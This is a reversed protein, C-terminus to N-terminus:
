PAEGPNSTYHANNIDKRKRATALLYAATTNTSIAEGPNSTSHATLTRERTRNNIYAAAMNTSIAEDPNNIYFGNDIDKRRADSICLAITM